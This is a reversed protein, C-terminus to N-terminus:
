IFAGKILVEASSGGFGAPAAASGISAFSKAASTTRKGVYLTDTASDFVFAGIRWLGIDDMCISELLTPAARTTIDWVSVYYKGDVPHAVYNFGYLLDGIIQISRPSNLFNLDTLTAVLSVSTPDRVDIIDISDPSIRTVYAYGDATLRIRGPGLATDTIAIKNSYVPADRTSIDLVTFLARCSVFLYDGTADVALGTPTLALNAGGDFESEEVINDPDTVNVITIHEYRDDYKNGSIYVYNGSKALDSMFSTYASSITIRDRLSLNGPDTMDWIDFYLPWSQQGLYILPHEVLIASQLEDPLLAERDRAVLNSPDSCDIINLYGYDTFIAYPSSWRIERTQAGMVDPLEDLLGGFYVGM